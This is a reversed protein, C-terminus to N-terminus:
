SRSGLNKQSVIKKGKKNKSQAIKKSKKSKNKALKEKAKSKKSNTSIKKKNPKHFNKAPESRPYKPPTQAEVSGPAVSRNPPNVFDNNGVNKLEQDIGAETSKDLNSNNTDSFSSLGDFPDHAPPAANQASEESFTTYQDSAALSMSAFFLTLAAVVVLRASKM